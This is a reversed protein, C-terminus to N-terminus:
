PTDQSLRHKDILVLNRRVGHGTCVQSSTSEAKTSCEQVFSDWGQLNVCADAPDGSLEAPHQHWPTSRVFAPCSHGGLAHPVICCSLHYLLSSKVSWGGGRVAPGRLAPYTPSSCVWKNHLAKKSKEERGWLIQQLLIPRPRKMIKGRGEEGRHLSHDNPQGTIPFSSSKSSVRCQFASTTFCISPGGWLSFRVFPFQNSSCKRIKILTPGARVVFVTRIVSRYVSTLVDTSRKNFSM